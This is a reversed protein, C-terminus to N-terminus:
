TVCAPSHLPASAATAYGGSLRKAADILVLRKLGVASLTLISLKSRQQSRHLASVRLWEQENIFVGARRYYVVLITSSGPSRVPRDLGPNM